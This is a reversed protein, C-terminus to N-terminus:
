KLGHEGHRDARPPFCARRGCLVGWQQAVNVRAGGDGARRAKSGQLRRLAGRRDRVAWLTRGLAVERHPEKLHDLVYQYEHADWAEGSQEAEEHTLVSDRRGAAHLKHLMAAPWEEPREPWTARM